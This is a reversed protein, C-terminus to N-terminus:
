KKYKWSTTVMDPMSYLAQSWGSLWSTSHWPPAHYKSWLPKNLSSSIGSIDWSSVSVLFVRQWFFSWYLYSVSFGGYKQIKRPARFYSLFSWWSTGLSIIRIESLAWYAHPTSVPATSPNCLTLDSSRFFLMCLCLGELYSVSHLINEKINRRSVPSYSPLSSCHEICFGDMCKKVM